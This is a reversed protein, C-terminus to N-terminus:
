NFYPDDLAYNFTGNSVEYEGAVVGDVSKEYRFSFTGKIRRTVENFETITVSGSILVNNTVEAAGYNTLLLLQCYDATEFDIADSLNYTGPSWLNSPIYLNLQYSNAVIDSTVGQVQVYTFQGVTPNGNLVTIDNGTVSYLYPVMTNYPVGAINATMLAPSNDISQVGVINVPGVWASNQNGDCNSRVYFDYSVNALLNQIVKTQTSSALITGSGITFGATGYQVQWSNGDLGASWAVTAKTQDTTSRVATVNTPSACLALETGPSVPGVWASYDDDSCKTRIYFDYDVTSTLGNILSSTPSFDVSTGNGLAFGNVGYQIEWETGSTKDWEIRVTNNNIFASVNFFAPADCPTPTPILLAPDIPEDDGTCSNLLFISFLLFLLALKPSKM